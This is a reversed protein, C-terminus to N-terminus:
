PAPPKLPLPRGAEASARSLISRIEDATRVSFFRYDTYTQLVRFVLMTDFPRGGRGPVTFRSREIKVESPFRMGNKMVAFATGVSEIFFTRTGAGAGPELDNALLAEFRTRRDFDDPTFAEVRLIQSTERDIWATGNWDNVDKEISGVPEFRLRVAPRDLAADDGQLEYHFHDWRKRGFLFAWSYAQGLWRHLHADALSVEKGSRSGARTRYDSFRGDQGYVYIYEFRHTGGPSDKITERCSFRLATDSYLLALGALRGLVPGVEPDKRSEDSSAAPGAAPLISAPGAVVDAVGPGPIMPGALAAAVALRRLRRM